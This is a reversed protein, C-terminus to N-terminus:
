APEEDETPSDLTPSELVQGAVHGDACTSGTFQPTCACEFTGTESDADLSCTGDNQCPSTNCEDEKSCIFQTPVEVGIIVGLIDESWQGNDFTVFGETDRNTIAIDNPKFTAETGDIWGFDDSNATRSLGIWYANTSTRLVENEHQNRIIALSTGINECFATADNRDRLEYGTDVIRFITSNETAVWQQGFVCCCLQFLVLCTIATNMNSIQAIKKLRAFKHAFM